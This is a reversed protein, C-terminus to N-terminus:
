CKAFTNSLNIGNRCMQWLDIEGFVSALSCWDHRRGKLVPGQWDDTFLNSELHHVITACSLTTCDERFGAEERSTFVIGSKDSESLRVPRSARTSSVTAVLLSSKYLWTKMQWIYVRLAYDFHYINGIALLSQNPTNLLHYNFGLRHRSSSSTHWQNLFTLVNRNIRQNLQTRSRVSNNFETVDYILHLTFREM